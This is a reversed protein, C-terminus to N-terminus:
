VRDLCNKIFRLSPSLEKPYSKFFSRVSEEIITSNKIIFIIEERTLAEFVQIADQKLFELCDFFDNKMKKSDWLDDNISRKIFIITQSRLSSKQDLLMYATEFKVEANVQELAKMALIWDKDEFKPNKICDKILKGALETNRYRHLDIILEQPYTKRLLYDVSTSKQYFQSLLEEILPQDLYSMLNHFFHSDRAFNELVYDKLNGTLRLTRLLSKLFMEFNGDSRHDKIFSLIFTENKKAIIKCFQVMQDESDITTFYRDAFCISKSSLEYLEDKSLNLDSLFKSYIEDQESIKEIFFKRSVGLENNQFAAIVKVALEPRKEVIAATVPWNYDKIYSTVREFELEPLCPIIFEKYYRKESYVMDLLHQYLEPNSFRLLIIFMEFHKPNEDFFSLIKASDKPTLLFVIERIIKVKDEDPSSELIGFLVKTPDENLVQTSYGKSAFFINVSNWIEYKSNTILCETVIRKIEALMGLEKEEDSEVTDSFSLSLSSLHMLLSSPVIKRIKEVLDTFTKELEERGSEKVNLEKSGIYLLIGLYASANEVNVLSYIKQFIGLWSSAKAELVEKSLEIFSEERLVNSSM